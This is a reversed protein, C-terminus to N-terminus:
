HASEWDKGTGAEVELPVSLQAASAMREIVGERVRDVAGEEVELVLEDHVQMVLRAPQKESQIWADVDIMARKIIDAATGQMPANIAAREAAQRRQPNRAKIEDLWLRRGFLTEVYGKERAGARTEDMYRRVGPYREFYREIYADAEKREIELQRALGWGSMGYMLGFNIAKAARRQNDTVKAPACDFVEAATARHIDEGQAFAELLREDGSLHAMIRLEIQSYDAALMVSGKPAVFAKRIRRGEATRIPINQLNPDTSSLRGTAAVAQHYHTHVRGTDPHIKEPLRDTYTSKLKALSRHELILRPLAFEVALEQLVDEATSPQGKPTKRVVPLDLEGFLIEQLQKPSSLNFERGAEAHASEELEALRAEIEKSQRGLLDADLAVGIREMRALVPVLPIELEQYVRLPGSQAELKPWLTRHLALTIEADEGAYEAARAVPVQDFTVQAKGKGAVQEYSITQRGLYRGALSDMDHRTATSNYVYSELMTDHAIGNLQYGARELVNLDYKLHQGVKPRDADALIPTVRELAEEADFETDQDAHRLPLYWAKSPEVAFSMGVLEADLPELSTTETDFAILEAEDLAEILADLQKRTSVLSVELKADAAPSEGDQYDKLWSSFGFERLLDILRAQDPSPPGIDDPGRDLEVSEDLAVLKRSLPLQDLAARLHEGIKGGVEDANEIVAELSGYQALWKAATKPGCKEVGPINDSSDGTLALYDGILAPPVGFKEEVAAADYRKEQMSDELVVRDDVLQALDKDGSSILVNLGKAAAARALTAIVDDAEVGPVEIREVGMADILGKLPDIQARLEDPMKPRNAKYDAYLEHRFNKGPADFIVAVRDPAHAQVLRRLMNAVGFIAGTPQGAANSLSPLAHFARYLYSSGDVLCLTQPKSM